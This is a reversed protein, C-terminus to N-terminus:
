RTSRNLADAVVWLRDQGWITTNGVRFSPVGWLGLDTLEQRNTEVEARWAKTGLLPKAAAWDLGARTVIRALGRDTRADIGESWVGRLFSATYDHLCGSNRALDLLAYGREVALGLPDCIRGFPIGLRRAERAADMLIYMRKAKPVPLGRMVMPLVPRIRLEAGYNQALDSVREFVLYSYPSRFSLFVEIMPPNKTTTPPPSAIPPFLPGAGQGVTALGLASLRDELYHLRDLGWYWEGGYHFTAGLYHGLRALEADGAATIDDTAPDPGMTSQSWLRGGVEVATEAFKPSDMAAALQAQALQISVPDLEDADQPFSLGIKDALQAADKRAYSRLAARAPTAWDPPGSILYPKLEIRYRDQLGRLVQATLHSYPDSVDHFYSVM